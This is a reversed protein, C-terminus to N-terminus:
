AGATTATDFDSQDKVSTPIGFTAVTGRARVAYDFAVPAAFVAGSELACVALVLATKILCDFRRM